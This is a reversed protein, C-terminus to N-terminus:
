KKRRSKKDQKSNTPENTDNNLIEQMHDFAMKYVNNFYDQLHDEGRRTIEVIGNLWEKAESEPVDIKRQVLNLSIFVMAKVDHYKNSTHTVTEIPNGLVAPTDLVFPLNWQELGPVDNWEALLIDKDWTGSLSNATINAKECQEATWRVQRYQIRMGQWVVYGWAVTGQDDPESYSETIVIECENFNIIKSRQNGGIIEDSNLDHVIMSIDGLELLNDKIMQMEQTTIKRPNKHYEKAM